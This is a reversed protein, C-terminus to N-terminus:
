FTSKYITQPFTKQHNRKILSSEVIIHLGFSTERIGFFPGFHLTKKKKMKNNQM